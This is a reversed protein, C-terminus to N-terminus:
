GKGRTDTESLLCILPRSQFGDVFFDGRIILPSKKIVM